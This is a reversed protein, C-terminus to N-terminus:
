LLPPLVVHLFFRCYFTKQRYCITFVDKFVKFSLEAIPEKKNVYLQILKRLPLLILFGTSYHGSMKQGNINQYKQDKCFKM